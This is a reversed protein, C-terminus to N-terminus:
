HSAVWPTEGKEGGRREGSRIGRPRAWWGVKRVGAAGARFAGLGVGGGEGRPAGVEQGWGAMAARDLGRGDATLLASGIKVVWRQAGTVKDRM